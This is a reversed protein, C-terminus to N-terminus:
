KNRKKIITSIYFDEVKKRAWPTKRLFKLSSKVSPNEYFCNIRIKEALHEWGFEEELEIIIRELTIGHLPDQAM